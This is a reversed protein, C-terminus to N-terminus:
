FTRCAGGDRKYPGGGGGPQSITDENSIRMRECIGTLTKWGQETLIKTVQNKEFTVVAEAKSLFM